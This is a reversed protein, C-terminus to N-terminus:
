RIMLLLTGATCSGGKKCVTKFHQYLDCAVSANLRRIERINGSVVDPALVVLIVIHHRAQGEFSKVLSVLGLQRSIM